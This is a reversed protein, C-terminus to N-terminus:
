SKGPFPSVAASTVPQTYAPPEAKSLLTKIGMRFHDYQTQVTDRETTRTALQQRLEDREKVVIQLQEVQQTLRTREEETTTLKKRLQERGSVAARFDDELKAIKTELARLREASAPGNAPGQACGWLGLSAVILVSLAKHGRSMLQKSRPHPGARAVMGTETEARILILHHVM